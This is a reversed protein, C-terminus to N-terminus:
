CFNIVISTASAREDFGSSNCSKILRPTTEGGIVPLCGTRRYSCILFLLSCIMGTNVYRPTLRAPAVTVPSRVAAVLASAVVESLRSCILM